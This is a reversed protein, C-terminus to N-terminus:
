RYRSESSADSNSYYDSYFLPLTGHLLLNSLDSMDHARTPKRIHFPFAVM